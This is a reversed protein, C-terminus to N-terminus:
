FAKRFPKWKERDVRLGAIIKVGSPYEPDSKRKKIQIIQLLGEL